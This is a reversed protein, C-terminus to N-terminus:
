LCENLEDRTWTILIIQCLSILFKLQSCWTFIDDDINCGVTISITVGHLYTTPQVNNKCWARCRSILNFKDWFPHVLWSPCAINM